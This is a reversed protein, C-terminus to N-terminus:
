AHTIPAFSQLYFLYSLYIQNNAALNPNSSNQCTEGAVKLPPSIEVTQKCNRRSMMAALIQMDVQGMRGHYHADIHCEQTKM